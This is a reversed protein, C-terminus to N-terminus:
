TEVMLAVLKEVMKEVLWVAWPDAMMVGTQAVMRGVMM